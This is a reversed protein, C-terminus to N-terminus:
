ENLQIHVGGAARDRQPGATAVRLVIVVGHENRIPLADRDGPPANAADVAVYKGSFDALRALHYVKGTAILSAADVAAVPPGSIRFDHRRDEFSLRGRGWMYAVGTSIRGESLQLTADPRGEAVPPARSQAPDAAAAAGIGMGFVAAVRVLIGVARGSM